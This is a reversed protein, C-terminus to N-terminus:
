MARMASSWLDCLGCLLHGCILHGEYWIVVSSLLNLVCGVITFCLSHGERPSCAFDSCDNPLIEALNHYFAPCSSFSPFLFLVFSLGCQRSKGDATSYMRSRAVTAAPRIESPDALFSSRM